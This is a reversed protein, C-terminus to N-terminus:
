KKENLSKLTGTPLTAAIAHKQIRLEVNDAVRCVVFQEEVKSVTGVLGGATVVEDGNAVSALLNKHDKARKQQPRLILFYFVAVFAGIMLFDMYPPAGSAAGAQAAMAEPFLFSM